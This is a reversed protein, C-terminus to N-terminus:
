PPKSAQATIQLCGFGLVVGLASSFTNGSPALNCLGTEADYLNMTFVSIPSLMANQGCASIDNEGCDALPAANVAM